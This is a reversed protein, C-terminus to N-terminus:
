EEMPLTINIRPPTTDITFYVIESSDEEDFENKGHVIIQYDGDPLYDVNSMKRLAKNKISTYNIGSITYKWENIDKDSTANIDLKNRNLKQGQSPTTILIRPSVNVNFFVKDNVINLGEYTRAYVKLNYRGTNLRITHILESDDFLDLDTINGSGLNITWNTINLDSIAEIKVLADTLTDEQVPEVIVISANNAIKFSRVETSEKFGTTDNCTVTVNHYSGYELNNVTLNAFTNSDDNYGDMVYSWNGISDSLICESINESLNVRFSVNGNVLVSNNLPTPSVFTPNLFINDVGFIVEEFHDRGMDDVFHYTLNHWGDLYSKVEGNIFPSNIGDVIVEQSTLPRDDSLTLNIEVDSTGRYVYPDEPNDIPSISNMGLIPNSKFTIVETDSLGVQDYSKVEYRYTGYEFNGLIFGINQSTTTYSYDNGSSPTFINGTKTANITITTNKFYYDEVSTSSYVSSYYQGGYLTNGYYTNEAFPENITIVPPETDIHYSITETLLRGTAIDTAQFEVILPVNRTDVQTIPQPVGYHTQTNGRENFIGDITFNWGTASRSSSASFTVINTGYVEGDIPSTVTITPEDLCTNGSCGWDCLEKVGERGGCSDYWYVHGNYCSSSYHSTPICECYATSGADICTQGCSSCPRPKGSSYCSGSYMWEYCSYGYFYSGGPLLQCTYPAPNGLYTSICDQAGASSCGKSTPCPTAQATFTGQSEFSDSSSDPSGVSQIFEEVTFTENTYNGVYASFSDVSFTIFDKGMSLPIETQEWGSLCEFEDLDFNNCRLINNPIKDNLIKLKLHASEIPVSDMAFIETEFEKSTGFKAKIPENLGRILVVSSVEEETKFAEGGPKSYLAATYTNNEEAELIFENTVDDREDILNIIDEYNTGNNQEDEIVRELLTNLSSKELVGGEASYSSYKVSNLKLDVGEVEVRLFYKEEDLQKNIDCTDKCINSFNVEEDQLYMSSILYQESPTVLYVKFAGDGKASGTLSMSRISMDNQPTWLSVKNSGYNQNLTEVIAHDSTFKGTLDIGNYILLIGSVILSLIFVTYFLKDIIKEGL